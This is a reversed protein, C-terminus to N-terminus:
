TFRKRLARCIPQWLPYMVYLPLRGNLILYKLQFLNVSLYQSVVSISFHGCKRAPAQLGCMNSSLQMSRDLLNSSHQCSWILFIEMKKKQYGLPADFHKFPSRQSESIAPTGSERSWLSVITHVWGAMPQSPM